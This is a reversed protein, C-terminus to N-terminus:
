TDTCICFSEIINLAADTKVEYTPIVLQKQKMWEDKLCFGGQIPLPYRQHFQFKNQRVSGSEGQLLYLRCEIRSFLTLKPLFRSKPM